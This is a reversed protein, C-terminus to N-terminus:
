VLGQLAILMDTVSTHYAKYRSVTDMLHNKDDTWTAVVSPTTTFCTQTHGRHGVGFDNQNVAILEFGAM